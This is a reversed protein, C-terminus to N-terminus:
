PQDLSAKVTVTSDRLINISRNWDAREASKLVLSHAGAPIHLTAPTTGVFKDDLYIEAGDPDSTIEVVGFGSADSTAATTNMMSAGSPLKAPTSSASSEALKPPPPYFRHLVELLDTASLAFGIGTVNKKILKQSNIGIVEGRANLLPGGSNGPNIPADTQIWTGPGAADFRGVASVIGKTVSFLMADGPNGVALVTEGQRITAADALALHAFGTGPTKALAIDLEPDVYVIKAELKTGDPLTALLAEEGRALHANTAIVGTETVFFGTGSKTLSKLYVVAPKTQRVLEELSLVPRPDAATSANEVGGTFIQSAPQLEFHFHDTKLLWYGGYNHGKLSVWNMPGETLQIEKAAYGDLTLRAVMPHELRSGITTKTKHLYGGPIEKEYPTTGVLVGNIQISAGSPVSTIRLKDASAAVPTLAGLAAAILVCRRHLPSLAV